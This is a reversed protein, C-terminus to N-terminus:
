DRLSHAVLMKDFFLKFKEHPVSVCIRSTAKIKESKENTFYVMGVSGINNKLLEDESINIVTFIGVPKSHEYLEDVLLHNTSLYQINKTIDEVTKKKFDSVAKKGEPTTLLKWILEQAFANIGNFAYLLRINLEENFAKDTSHIFGIRQGSLGMTKSFSETIIVNKLELLEQYFADDTDYFIRRYPSDFIIIVGMETLSKISAMMEVDELKNGVPNNPDCLLVAIKKPNTTESKRLDKISAVFSNLNEFTDSELGRIMCLKQYSGWFFKNFYVIDLDLIQVVADIAPMGGPVIAIHEINSKGAFYEQDIAERLEPTGKNPPYVQIRTSNFDILKVVESLNISCVANIGRNLFLYEEGSDEMMKKIKAGIGVISSFTAGSKKIKM